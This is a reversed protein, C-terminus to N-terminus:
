NQHEHRALPYRIDRRANDRVSASRAGAIQANIKGINPDCHLDKLIQPAVPGGFSEFGQTEGDASDGLNTPVAVIM